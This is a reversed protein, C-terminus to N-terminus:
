NLYQKLNIGFKLGSSLVIRELESVTKKGANRMKWVDLLTYSALEGLTVVDNAKLVNLARVSIDLDMVDTMLLKRMDKIEPPVNNYENLAEKIIQKLEDTSIVVIKGEM